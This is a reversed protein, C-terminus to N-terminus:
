GGTSKLLGLAEKARLHMLSLLDITTCFERLDETEEETLSGLRSKEELGSMKRDDEPTLHWRLIEQATQASLPRHEANMARELVSKSDSAIM